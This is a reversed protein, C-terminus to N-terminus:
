PSIQLSIEQILPVPLQPKKASSNPSSKQAGEFASLLIYQNERATTETMPSVALKNATGSPCSSCDWHAPFRRKDKQGPCRTARSVWICPIKWGMTRKISSKPLVYDQPLPLIHANATTTDVHVRKSLRNTHVAHSPPAWLPNPLKM